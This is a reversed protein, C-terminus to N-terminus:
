PRARGPPLLEARKLAGGFQPCLLAQPAHSRPWHFHHRELRKFWLVFGNREWTLIKVGTRRRNTFVFLAPAFPDLELEVQVLAALGASQKRFDVPELCVYVEVGSGSPRIM